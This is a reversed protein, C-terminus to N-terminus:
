KGADATDMIEADTTETAMTGEMFNAAGELRVTRESVATEMFDGIIAALIAVHVVFGSIVVAMAVIAVSARVAIFIGGLVSSEAITEESHRPDVSTTADMTAEGGMAGMSTGGITVASIAGATAMVTIGGAMMTTSTSGHRITLTLIEAGTFHRDTSDESGHAQESSFAM